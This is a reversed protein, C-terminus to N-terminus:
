SVFFFFSINAGTMMYYLTCGVAYIDSKISFSFCVFFFLFVDVMFFFFILFDLVLFFFFFLYIFLGCKKGESLEPAIYGRDNTIKNNM